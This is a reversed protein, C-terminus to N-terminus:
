KKLVKMKSLREKWVDKIVTGVKKMETESLKDSKACNFLCCAWCLNEPNNNEYDNDKHDVELNNGRNGGYFSGWAQAFKDEEIDCYECVKKRGLQTLIKKANRRSRAKKNKLVDKKNLNPSAM